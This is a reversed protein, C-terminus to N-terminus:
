NEKTQKLNLKYSDHIYYTQGNGKIEEIKNELYFNDKGIKVNLNTTL